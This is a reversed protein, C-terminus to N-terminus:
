NSTENSLFFPFEMKPRPSPRSASVSYIDPVDTRERREVLAKGEGVLQELLRALGEWVKISVLDSSCM